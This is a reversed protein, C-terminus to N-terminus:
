HSVNPDSDDCDGDSGAYGPPIASSCLQVEATEDGGAGDGDGDVHLLIAPWTAEDGDRRTSKAHDPDFWVKSDQDSAGSHSCGVVTGITVVICLWVASCSLFYGHRSSLLGAFGNCWIRRLSM